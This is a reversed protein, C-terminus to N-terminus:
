EPTNDGVEKWGPKKENTVFYHSSLIKNEANCAKVTKEIVSGVAVDMPILASVLFIDDKFEISEIKLDFESGVENIKDQIIKIQEDNFSGKNKSRISFYYRMKEGEGGAGSFVRGKNIGMEENELFMWGEEFALIAWQKLGGEAKKLFEEIIKVCPLTGIHGM